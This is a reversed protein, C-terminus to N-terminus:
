ESILDSIDIQFLSAHYVGIIGSDNYLTFEPYSTNFFEIVTYTKGITIDKNIRGMNNKICIVKM